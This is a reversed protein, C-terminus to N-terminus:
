IRPCVFGHHTDARGAPYTPLPVIQQYHRAAKVKVKDKDKYKTNQSDPPRCQVSLVM